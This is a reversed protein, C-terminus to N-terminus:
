QRWVCRRQVPQLYRADIQGSLLSWIQGGGITGLVETGRVADVIAPLVRM